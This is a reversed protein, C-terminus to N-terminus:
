IQQCKVVLIFKQMKRRYMFVWLSNHKTTKTKTTKNNKAPVDKWVDNWFRKEQWHFQEFNKLFHKSLKSPRCILSYFFLNVEDTKLLCIWRKFNINMLKNEKSKLIICCTKTKNTQKELFVFRFCCRFVCNSFLLLIIQCRIFIVM